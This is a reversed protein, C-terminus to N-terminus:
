SAGAGTTNTTPAPSPRFTFAAPNFLLPASPQPRQAQPHSSRKTASGGSTVRPSVARPRHSPSSRPINSTPDPVFAFPNKKINPVSSFLGGPEIKALAKWADQATQGRQRRMLFVLVRHCHPKEGVVVFQLIKDLDQALQADFQNLLFNVEMEVIEQYKYTFTSFLETIINSRSLRQRIGEKAAAKLKPLCAYDALRYMSKPSCSVTKSNVHPKNESKLSNFQINNTYAYLIFAKWTKHATGNIAFARGDSPFTSFSVVGNSRKPEESGEGAKEPADVTPKTTNKEEVKDTLNEAAADNSTIQPKSTSEEEEADDDDADGDDPLSELDSDSDYDYKEAALKAIEEPTEEKLLCPTGNSFGKDPSLLSELYSSSSGLLQAKAYVAKPETPLGRCKASFLYFKTDIFSPDELSQGLVTQTSPHPTTPFTLGDSVNFLLSITIHTSGKYRPPEEYSGLQHVEKLAVHTFEQEHEKGAPDDPYTVKVHVMAASFALTAVTPPPPHYSLQVAAALSKDQTKSTQEPPWASYKEVM